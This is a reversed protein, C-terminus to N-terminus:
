LVDSINGIGVHYDVNRLPLDTRDLETSRNCGRKHCNLVHDSLDRIEQRDLYKVSSRCLRRYSMNGSPLRVIQDPVCHAIPSRPPILPLLPPPPPFSPPSPTSLKHRATTTHGYVRADRSHRFSARRTKVLRAPRPSPSPLRRPPLPPPVPPPPYPAHWPLPAAVM